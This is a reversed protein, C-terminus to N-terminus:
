IAGAFGLAALVSGAVIRYWAFPAFSHLRLFAVFPRVVVLASLFAVVTAVVFPVLLPGRLEDLSKLLKLGCAGYLIPLGVLFSFEAAGVRSVGLLMAGCITAASRSTGPVLALCQVFGIALAARYSMATLGIPATGRRQLWRELVLLAVGGAVMTAAVVDTRFLHAELWDDLLLGLVGAPLAAVLIQLLLNPRGPEPRLAKRAADLLQRAYLVLIASIAGTQIGIELTPNSCDLLHGAVILHGTSSVPLFETLGEVLGLVLADVLGPVGGGQAGLAGVV